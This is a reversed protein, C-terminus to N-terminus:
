ATLKGHCQKYKKGSGCPCPENRGIKRGDRVIPQQAPAEGQPQAAQEGPNAQQLKMQEALRRAQEERERELRAVEEDSRITVNQLM